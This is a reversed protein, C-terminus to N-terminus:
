QWPFGYCGTKVRFFLNLRECSMQLYGSEDIVPLKYGNVARPMVDRYRGRRKAAELMM